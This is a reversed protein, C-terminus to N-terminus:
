TAIDGTQDKEAEADHNSHHDDSSEEKAHDSKEKQQASTKTDDV